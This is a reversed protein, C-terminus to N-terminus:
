MLRVRGLVKAKATSPNAMASQISVFCGLRSIAKSAKVVTLHQGMGTMCLAAIMMRLQVHEPRCENHALRSGPVRTLQVTMM